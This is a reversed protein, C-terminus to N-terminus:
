RLTQRRAHRAIVTDPKTGGTSSTSAEAPELTCTGIVLDSVQRVGVTFVQGLQVTNSKPICRFAFGAESLTRITAATSAEDAAAAPLVSLTLSLLVAAIITRTM